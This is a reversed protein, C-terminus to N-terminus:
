INSDNTNVGERLEEVERKVRISVDEELVSETVNASDAEDEVEEEEEDDNELIITINDDAVGITINSLELQDDVSRIMNMNIKDEESSKEEEEDKGNLKELYEKKNLIMSKEKVIKKDEEWVHEKVAINVLKSDASDEVDRRKKSTEPAEEEVDDYYESYDYEILSINSVAGPAVYTNDNPDKSTEGFKLGDGQILFFLYKPVCRAM